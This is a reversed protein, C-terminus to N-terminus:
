RRIEIFKSFSIVVAVRLVVSYQDQKSLIKLKKLLEGDCNISPM